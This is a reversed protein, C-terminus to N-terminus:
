PPRGHMCCGESAPAALLRQELAANYLRPLWKPTRHVLSEQCILEWKRAAKSHKRLGAEVVALEQDTLPGTVMLKAAQMPPLARDAAKPQLTLSQAM